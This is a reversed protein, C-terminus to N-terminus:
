EYKQILYNTYDDALAQDTQEDSQKALGRLSTLTGAPPTRNESTQINQQIFQAFLWVLRAQEEPLQNVLEYISRALDDPTELTQMTM